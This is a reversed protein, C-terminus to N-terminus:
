DRQNLPLIDTNEYTLEELDIGQEILDTVWQPRKGRGGWFNGKGDTYKKKRLDDVFVAIQTIEKMDKIDIDNDEHIKEIQLYAQIKREEHAKEVVASIKSALNIREDPNLGAIYEDMDKM